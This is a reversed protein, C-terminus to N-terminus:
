AKVGVTGAMAKDKMAKSMEVMNLINGESDKFWASKMDGMSSMMTAIGNMTKIGMKPMDYEEFKVGMGMLQKVEAAIDDVEFTALTHDAKSAARQYIYLMSGKGAMFMVGPSPDEMMVKLGLKEEYFKRARKIDMAPITAYVAMNTLM